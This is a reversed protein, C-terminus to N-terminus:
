RAPPSLDTLAATLALVVAALALELSMLRKFSVVPAGPAEPSSAARELRPKLWLRNFGGLGLMPAFAAVKSLLTVGYDTGTLAEVTRVEEWSRFLGSAVLLGVAIVAMSSFRSVAPALVRVRHTHALSSTAPYVAFVLMLLGGIWCAAAGLHLASAAVNVAAPSREAAHGSLGATTLLGLALATVVAMTLAHSRLRASGSRMELLSRRGLSAWLAAALLLGLLRLLTSLVPRSAPVVESTLAALLSPDDAEEVRTRVLLLLLSAATGAVAGLWAFTGIRRARRAFSGAVDRAASRDSGLVPWWVVMVFAAAGVLVLLSAITMLRAVIELFEPGDTVQGASVRLAHAQDILLTFESM